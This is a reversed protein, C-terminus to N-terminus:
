QINHKKIYAELKKFWPEKVLTEDEINMEVNFMIITHYVVRPPLISAIIRGLRDKARESLTPKKM